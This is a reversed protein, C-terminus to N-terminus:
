PTGQMRPNGTCGEGIIAVGIGYCYKAAIGESYLGQEKETFEKM